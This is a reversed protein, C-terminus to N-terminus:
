KWCDISSTPTGTATQNGAQDLTFSTCGLDNVQTGVPTATITYTGPQPIGGVITPAAVTPAAITYYGSGVTIPFAGAYGLNAAVNTYSNNTSFWREERGALDLLASKADTRRGKQVQTNYAPIAISILIAAIVLTAMLEVLTFGSQAASHHMSSKM